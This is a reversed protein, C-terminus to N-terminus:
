KFKITSAYQKVYDLDRGGVFVVEDGNPTSKGALFPPMGRMDIDNTLVILDDNQVLNYLYTTTLGNLAHQLANSEGDSSISSNYYYIVIDGDEIDCGANDEWYECKCGLRGNAWCYAVDSYHKGLPVNMTFHGDFDQNSYSIGFQAFLAIIAFIMVILLVKKNM